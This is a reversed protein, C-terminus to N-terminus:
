HELGLATFSSSVGQDDDKFRPQGRPSRSRSRDSHGHSGGSIQSQLARAAHAAVRSHGGRQAGSRSSHHTHRGSDDMIALQGQAQGGSMQVMQPQQMMTVQQVMPGGAMQVMQPQQMMMPPQQLPAPSFYGQMGVQTWM